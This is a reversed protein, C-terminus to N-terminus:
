VCDESRAGPAGCRSKSIHSLVRRPTRPSLEWQEKGQAASSEATQCLAGEGKQALGRPRLDDLAERVEARFWADDEAAYRSLAFESDKLATIKGRKCIMESGQRVISKSLTLSPSRLAAAGGVRSILDISQPVGEVRPECVVGGRGGKRGMGMFVLINAPFLGTEGRSAFPKRVEM